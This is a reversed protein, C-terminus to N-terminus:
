VDYKEIIHGAIKDVTKGGSMENLIGRIRPSVLREIEASMVIYKQNNMYNM